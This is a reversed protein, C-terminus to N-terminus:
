AEFSTVQAKGQRLLVEAMKLTYDNGSCSLCHHLPTYGALDHSDVEAGLEILKKLIEM